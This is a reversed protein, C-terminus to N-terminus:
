PETTDDPDVVEETSNGSLISIIEDPLPLRPDAEATGYLINELKKLNTADVTTSDIEVKATPKYPKGTIPNTGSVNVPTTNVDWSMTTADPNDNITGHDKSSPAAKCGYVIHIKYGYDTDETDNGLTTVWSFGFPRRTQQGITMGAVPSSAGNCQNFQEPYQYAEITLGYNEASILSLYKIDDAYIDNADGGEPNENVASLGNWAYGKNYIKTKDEVSNDPIYLVGKKCGTEYIREGIQDWVLQSM